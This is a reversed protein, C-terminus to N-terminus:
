LLSETVQTAMTMNNVTIQKQDVLLAFHESNRFGMAAFFKFFM